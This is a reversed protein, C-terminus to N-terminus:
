ARKGGKQLFTLFATLLFTIAILIFALAVAKPFNGRGVELVISTTLIQTSHFVNAGVMMAAGVEAFNRGMGAIIAALIGYRAEQFLIIWKRIPTAGMSKVVLFMNKDIAQFTTATLGIIIPLSLVVQALAVGQPTYIVDLLGLPGSRWFLFCILLGIVVPPVGMGLNILSLLLKKGFFDKIGLFIGIPIGIITSVATAGLCIKLTTVVIILVNQDMHFLLNFAAKLGDAMYQM